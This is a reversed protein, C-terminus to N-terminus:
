RCRAINRNYRAKFMLIICMFFILKESSAMEEEHPVGQIEPEQPQVTPMEEPPPEALPMEETPPEPHPGEQVIIESVEPAHLQIQSSCL